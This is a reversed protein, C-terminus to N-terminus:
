DEAEENEGEQGNEQDENVYAGGEYFELDESETEESTEEAIVPELVAEATEDVYAYATMKGSLFVAAAMMLMAALNRVTKKM